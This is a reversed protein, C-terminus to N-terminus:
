KKGWKEKFIVQSEKFLKATNIQKSSIKGFHTVPVDVVILPIQKERARFSLDADEHYCFYEESFVQNNVLLKDFNNKSSALCWGSMYSKGDLQKNAEKLFNLKNDFLGMTPGVLGEDCRDILKQTWNSHESDVRIDNNLFLVKDSTAAHYGINTGYAFGGNVENRIYTIEKSDKLSKTDDTSANDVVIIEHDSLHSLDNLCSKTFNFKNFALIVISLKPM